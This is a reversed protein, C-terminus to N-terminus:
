RWLTTYESVSYKKDSRSDGIGIQLADFRYSAGVAAVFSPESPIKKEAIKASINLRCV